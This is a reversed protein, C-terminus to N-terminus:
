QEQRQEAAAKQARYISDQKERLRKLALRERLQQYYGRANLDRPDQQIAKRYANLAEQARGLRQLCVGEYFYLKPLSRNFKKVHQIYRYAIKYQQRKFAIRALEYSATYLNYNRRYAKEFAVKASDTNELMLFAHGKQLHLSDGVTTYQLGKNAYHIAQEPQEMYNYLRTLQNYTPLYNPRLRLARHFQVSADSTDKLAFALQGKLHPVVAENPLLPTLKRLMQKTTTYRKEALGIHAFIAYAQWNSSDLRITRRLLPKAENYQKGKTYLSAAFVLYTTQTPALELARKAHRLANNPQKKKAYIRALNYHASASPENEIADELLQVSTNGYFDNPNPIHQM